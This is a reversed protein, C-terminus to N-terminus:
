QLKKLSGEFNTQNKAVSAAARALGLQRQIFTELKKIKKAENESKPQLLKGLKSNMIEVKPVM